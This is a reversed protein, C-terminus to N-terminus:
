GWFVLTFILFSMHTFNTIELSKTIAFLCVFFNAVVWIDILLPGTM